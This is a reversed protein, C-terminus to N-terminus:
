NNKAAERSLEVLLGEGANVADAAPTKQSEAYTFRELL